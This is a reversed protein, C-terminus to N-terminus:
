FTSRRRKYLQLNCDQNPIKDLALSYHLQIRISPSLCDKNIGMKKNELRGISNKCRYIFKKYTSNIWLRFDGIFKKYTPYLFNIAPIKGGMFNKYTTDM